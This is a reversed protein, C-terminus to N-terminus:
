IVEFACVLASNQLQQMGGLHQYAPNDEMIVDSSTVSGGHEENQPETTSWSDYCSLQSSAREVNVINVSSSQMVFEIIISIAMIVCVKGVIQYM